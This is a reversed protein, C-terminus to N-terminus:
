DEYEHAEDEEEYAPDTDIKIYGIVIFGSDNYCNFDEPFDILHGGGTFNSSNTSDIDDVRICGILGADVGYRNGNQDQYEGDGWRTNFSAFRRGDKLNFEGENCGRDDRGDFFLGCVENWEDHMVYCLDGVYYLGARMVM